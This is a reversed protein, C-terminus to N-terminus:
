PAEPLLETIDFPAPADDSPDADAADADDSPAAFEASAPANARADGFLQVLLKRLIEAATHGGSDSDEMVVAIAYQPKEAPAYCIMWAHKKREGNETYEATGTKGAAKVGPIAARRGSGERADNIADFMGGKVLALDRKSWGMPEGFEARDGGDGRVLRPKLTRGDLAIAATMSAIQLPTATLYGQGISLNATDGGRWGERWRRMKYEASPLLGPSVKVGIQPAAGLGLRLCDERIKELGLKLGLSIFYPNCSVSLARRMAINGHGYKSACKIVRSGVTISGPCPTAEDAGVMGHSLGCLAVVPKFVSGPPYAGSLARNVLPRAPDNVLGNWLKPSLRPSCDRLDFRPATAAALMDGNDLSIVVAAGRGKGASDLADEATKQLAADIALVVDRGPVPALAMNEEHRYGIADVRILKGGGAGALQADFYMEVGGRGTLDPLYFNIDKTRSDEAITEWEEDLAQAASAAGAGGSAGAGDNKSNDRGVYGILHAALNGHPYVREAGAYVDTGALSREGDGLNRASEAYRALEADTLGTFALLPIARRLRIHNWIDKVSVDREKGTVEALTDLLTDVRNVTNSWPGPRRLDEIYIAISFSPKNDALVVGNRDLIRGRTAPLRVRRISHRIQERAYGESERTQIRHLAAGLRLLCLAMAAALLGMRWLAGDVSKM